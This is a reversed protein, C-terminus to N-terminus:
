VSPQVVHHGATQSFETKTSHGDRVNGKTKGFPQCPPSAKGLITRLIIGPKWRRCCVGPPTQAPVPGYPWRVRGLPLLGSATPFRDAHGPLFEIGVLFRPPSVLAHYPHEAWPMLAFSLYRTPQSFILDTGKNAPSRAPTRRQVRAPHAVCSRAVDSANGGDAQASESLNDGVSSKDAAFNNV